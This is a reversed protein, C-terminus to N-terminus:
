FLFLLLRGGLFFRPSWMYNGLFGDQYLYFLFKLIGKPSLFQSRLVHSNLLCGYFFPINKWFLDNSGSITSEIMPTTAKGLSTIKNEKVEPREEKADDQNKGYLRDQEELFRLGEDEIPDENVM